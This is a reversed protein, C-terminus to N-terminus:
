KNDEFDKHLERLQHMLICTPSTCSPVSISPNPNELNICKYQTCENYCYYRFFKEPHNVAVQIAKNIIEENIFKQSDEICKNCINTNKGNTIMHRVEDQKKDCFSCILKEQM